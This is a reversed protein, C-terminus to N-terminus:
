WPAASVQGNSFQRLGASQLRQFRIKLLVLLSRSQQTSLQLPQRPATSQLRLCATEAFAPRHEDSEDEDLPPSFLFYRFERASNCANRSPVSTHSLASNRVELHLPCTPLLHSSPPPHLLQCCSSIPGFSSLVAFIAALFSVNTACFM